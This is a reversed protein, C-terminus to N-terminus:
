LKALVEANKIIIENEDEGTTFDDCGTVLLYWNNGIYYKNLEVAARIAERAEQIEEESSAVEFMFPVEIITGCTGDLETANDWDFDYWHNSKNAIDGVSYEKSDKRLAFTFDETGKKVIESYIIEVTNNVRQQERERKEAAIMM